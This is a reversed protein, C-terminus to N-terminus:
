FGFFASANDNFIRQKASEQVSFPMGEIATKIANLTQWHAHTVGAVMHQFETHESPDVWHYPYETILRQGKAPHTYTASRILNLPEDSGYMIRDIGFSRIALSVVEASPVLATDLFIRDCQALAEYAEKLGPVVIKTLGLHALVVRLRPFDQLLDITQDLCKTIIRPPHLIIPIDLEQAVELVEKPFYQYIETAPPKFYSYYMKLASVRPNHLTAITYGIDDPLGYLAVRDSFKSNEFLYRNAQRHDIGSFTKPFRLSRIDKGPYLMNHWQVSEELSFSPFTSLMHNYTTDDVWRVHEALNCHAHCDIIKSPLWRTFGNLLEREQPKFDLAYAL